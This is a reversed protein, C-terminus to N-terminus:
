INNREKEEWADRFDRKGHILSLISIRKEEIRYILRYNYIFVERVNKDLFESVMRGREAFERLSRGVALARSVFSAAYALSDRQIYAAAAELDEQAAQAWIVQREM